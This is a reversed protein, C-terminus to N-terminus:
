RIDNENGNWCCLNFSITGVRVEEKRGPSTIKAHLTHIEVGKQTHTITLYM